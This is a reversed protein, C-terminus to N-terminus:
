DSLTLQGAITQLEPLNRILVRHRETQVLGQREFTALVRNITRESLGLYEGISRRGLGLHIDDEAWGLRKLRSSFSVLLAAIRRDAMPKGLVAMIEHDLCIKEGMIQIFRKGLSTIQDALRLLEEFPFGCVSTPELALATCQYLGAGVGTMGVFEGPLYIGTIQEAHDFQAPISCKLSGTRVIYISRFRDGRNHLHQGTELAPPRSVIKEFLGLETKKLESPLCFRKLHCHNCILHDRM